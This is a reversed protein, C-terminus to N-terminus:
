NKVVLLDLQHMLGCNAQVVIFLLLSVIINAKM